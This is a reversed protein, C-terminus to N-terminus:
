SRPAALAIEDLHLRVRDASHELLRRAARESGDVDRKALHAALILWDTASEQRREPTLFSTAQGRILQWAGMSALREYVGPLHSNGSWEILLTQARISQNAFSQPDMGPEAAMAELKAVLADLEALREAGGHRACNGAAVSLLAARLEFIDDLDKRSFEAIRAGFRPTRVVYGQKALSILAERVTARSVAHQQALEEEKLRDGASLRGAMVEALVREALQEPLSKASRGLPIAQNQTSENM